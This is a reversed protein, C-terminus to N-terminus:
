TCLFNKFNSLFYSQLVLDIWPICEVSNVEQSGNVDSDRSAKSTMVILYFTVASSINQIKSYKKPAYHKFSRVIKLLFCAALIVSFM